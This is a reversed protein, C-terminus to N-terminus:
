FRCSIMMQAASIFESCCLPTRAPAAAVRVQLQRPPAPTHAPSPTSQMAWDHVCRHAGAAPAAALADLEATMERSLPGILDHPSPIRAVQAASLRRPPAAAAAAAAPAVRAGSACAVIALAIAVICVRRHM